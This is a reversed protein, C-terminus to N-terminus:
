VVPLLRNGSLCNSEKYDKPVPILWNDMEKKRIAAAREHM